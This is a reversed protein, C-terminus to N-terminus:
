VTRSMEGPGSGSHGEADPDEAHSVEPRAWSVTSHKSAKGHKEAAKDGAQGSGHEDCALCRWGYELTVM